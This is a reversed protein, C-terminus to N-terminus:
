DDARTFAWFDPMEAEEEDISRCEEEIVYGEPFDAIVESSVIRIRDIDEHM